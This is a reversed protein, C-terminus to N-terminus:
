SKWSIKFEILLFLIMFGTLNNIEGTSWGYILLIGAILKTPSFNYGTIKM